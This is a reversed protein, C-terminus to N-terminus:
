ALSAALRIVWGVGVKKFLPNWYYDCCGALFFNFGSGILWVLELRLRSRGTSNRALMMM